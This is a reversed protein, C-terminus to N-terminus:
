IYAYMCLICIHVIYIYIMCCVVYLVCYVIYLIRVYMGVYRGVWGCVYM